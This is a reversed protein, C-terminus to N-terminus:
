QASIKRGRVRKIQHLSQRLESTTIPTSRRVIEGRIPAIEHERPPVKMGSTIKNEVEKQIERIGIKKRM